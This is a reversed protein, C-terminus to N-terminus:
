NTPIANSRSLMMQALAEFGVAPQWGIAQITAPDSVLTSYEPTFGTRLEVHDQWQRGVGAFCLQLWEEITHAQGSGITAETVLDQQVLALIAAAVDGAFTWEKAVSMDGITLKENSGAAIRQVARVIMQSVHNDKRLPSEHHFLYGVYTRIGLSRFYRAAYVSQIRAVAYASGPQFADKESIPLGRNVFQVGSGTVFVKAQPCHLRVAELINLTGTVITAHNEFLATHRTTSNAALHFVFDPQHLRVLAEVQEYNSVDGPHQASSRSIGIPEIDQTRCLQSLYYGDQGASGFILASVKEESFAKLLAQRCLRLRVFRENAYQLSVDIFPM